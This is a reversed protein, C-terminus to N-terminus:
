GNIQSVKLSSQPLNAKKKKCIKFLKSHHSANGCRSRKFVYKTGYKTRATSTRMWDLQM